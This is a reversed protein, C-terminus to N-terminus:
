TLEKKGHLKVGLCYSFSRLSYIFDRRTIYLLTALCQLLTIVNTLSTCGETTPLFSLVLLFKFCTVTLTM